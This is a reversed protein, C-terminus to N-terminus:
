GEGQQNTRRSRLFRELEEVLDEGTPLPSEPASPQPEQMDAQQELARVLAAVDPKDRLAVNVREEFTEAESELARLDLPVDMVKGFADLVALMVRPNPHASIYHPVSGWISVSSGGRQRCGDQLVSVIGTPGQYNSPAIAAKLLRDRLRKDNSSGSLKPPRTHPVDQLYAGFIIISTVGIQEAIDLLGKTYRRWRLQPEAGRFVIFPRELPSGTIEFLENSPWTLRRLGRSDLAVQPRTETFDYFEEPDLTAFRRAQWANILWRAASSAVDGADNWGSFAAVLVGNQFRPANDITWEDM